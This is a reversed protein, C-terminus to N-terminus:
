SANVLAQLHHCSRLYTVRQRDGIVSPAQVQTSHVTLATIRPLHIVPRASFIFLVGALFERRLSKRLRTQDHISEAISRKRWPPRCAGSRLAQRLMSGLSMPLIGRGMSGALTIQQCLVSTGCIMSAMAHCRPGPLSASSPSHFANEPQQVQQTSCPPM